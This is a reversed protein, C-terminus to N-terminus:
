PDSTSCRRVTIQIKESRDPLAISLNVLALSMFQQNVLREFCPQSQRASELVYM